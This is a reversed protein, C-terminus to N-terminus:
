PLINFVFMGYDPEPQVTKVRLYDRFNQVSLEETKTRKSPNEGSM